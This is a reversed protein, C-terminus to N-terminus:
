MTVDRTYDSSIDTAGIILLLSNQAKIKYEDAEFKWSDKEKLDLLM